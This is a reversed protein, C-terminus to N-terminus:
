HGVFCRIEGYLRREIAGVLRGARRRVELDASAHAARRLDPLAAEGLAELSRDAAEREGFRDSGLLRILRGVAGPEPAPWCAAVPVGLLSFLVAMRGALARAGRLTVSM